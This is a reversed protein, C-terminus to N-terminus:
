YDLINHILGDSCGTLAVWPEFFQINSDLFHVSGDCLSVNVGGPHNSGMAIYPEGENVGGAPFDRQIGFGSIMHSAGYWSMAIRDNAARWPLTFPRMESFCITNSSGDTISGFTEKSREGFPGRYQLWNPDNSLYGANSVYDTAEIAFLNDGTMASGVATQFIGWVIGSRAEVNSSPCHFLPLNFQGAEFDLLAGTSGGSINYWRAASDGAGNDQNPSHDQTLSTDAECLNDVNNQEMFPLILRLTTVQSGNRPGASISPGVGQAMHIAGTPFRMHASEYNLTALTIQRMANACTTRRAAERVQQVAPLLMGILIGIIAIVVLLEVLTFGQKRQKM